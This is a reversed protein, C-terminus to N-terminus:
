DLAVLEVNKIDIKNKKLNKDAKEGDPLERKRHFLTVNLDDLGYGKMMLNQVVETVPLMRDKQTELGFLNIVGCFNEGAPDPEANKPLNLYVEYSGGDLKEVAVQKLILLYGKPPAGPARKGVPPKNNTKVLIIKKPKESVSQGGSTFVVTKSLSDQTSSNNNPPAPAPKITSFGEYNYDLQATIDIVQKGTMRVPKGDEDYFLFEKNMWKDNDKPYVAGTERMYKEWLRDINCHHLWFLPDQGATTFSGMLRSTNGAVAMHIAGHPTNEMFYQFSYNGLMKKAAFAAKTNIEGDSLFGGQNMKPDRSKTWLANLETAPKRFVLPISRGDKTSYDWFPLAFNLDGSAKRVIREFFYLYMRHWSLFFDNEHQCQDWENNARRLKNGHMDAQFQWSTPDTPKRKRMVEIAKKYAVVMSDKDTMKVVNKRTLTKGLKYKWHEFPEARNFDIYYRDNSCITLGVTREPLNNKSFFFSLSFCGLAAALIAKKM